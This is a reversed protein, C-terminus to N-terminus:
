ETRLSKIPNSLAAKIAQSSVTILAIMLSIVGAAFFIWWNLQVRYVYGQLWKNMFYYAIASALVFAISILIIFEKSFLYIVSKVSAGLLKRISVEKIRQVAMFSALGYLGLCSLLIAIIAFIKYLQSLKNESSYFKAIKQDLFQYEFVYEPFVQAWIQEINKIQSAFNHPKLKIGAMSYFEKNSALLVPVIQQQLSQSHFDKVVGVINAKVKGDWMNIEKNLALAPDTIGLLKLLTVNVIFETATDSQRLNRGALLKLDYTNIYNSDAWKLNAPFDTEKEANNFRFNSYWNNSEAPSGFGFSFKSIGKQQNLRDKLFGIKSLGTSDTPFPVTIIAEKNFGMSKSNFFDMQKVLILTGIILAQAIIFQIVVLGKRVTVGKTSNAVVKSKLATIPNFRSLVLSPYLSSLIIVISVLLILFWILLPDKFINNALPLELINKIYPLILWAFLISIVVACLVIISTESIFQFRLQHLKSGLVKRIGVEKARNVAQATSLNIFNVCAIILIFLGIFILGRILEKSIFRQLYNGAQSDHHVRSLSQLLQVDNANDGTKYKKVFAPLLSSFQKESLNEPLLIYCGMNSSVSQWDTSAFSKLTKYSVIVKLQFDTNGPVDDLVGTVKLDQKNNRRLIKGVALKWDGFYKEATAKTLAATNPESLSAPNGTLWKFDFIEFFAPDTFFVGTEEKFKKTFHGGEDIVAIQDNGNSFISTVKELQPFDNKLAGALPAPVGASTNIANADHFETLVRYIRDKKRHFADFSTEFRVVLFIIICVAIGLALGFINIASYTKNRRLNRFATKFYNKIM